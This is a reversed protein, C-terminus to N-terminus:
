AAEQSLKSNIHALAARGIFESYAPPIAQAMEERRMHWDIGMAVAGDERSFNHGAICIMDAGSAFTSYTRSSNTTGRHTQHPPVMVFFSVEFERHRFVRLGFQLGCLTFPHLLPAGPVNEIVYPTASAMLLARTPAVLDPHERGPWLKATISYKQCPPSAWVFDFAGLDLGSDLANAQVFADGCYRPQPNIDVGTVHFGARQLGKTAGGACCFLDLAKPRTDAM